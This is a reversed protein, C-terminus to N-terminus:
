PTPPPTIPPSPTSSGDPPSSPKWDSLKIVNPLHAAVANALRDDATVFDCKMRNALALYCSDYVTRDWETAIKYADELLSETSTVRWPLRQLGGIVLSADATSIENRRRKKWIINGMEVFLLDPAFCVIRRSKWESRVLRAIDILTEDVFWKVVVSSDIVLEGSM